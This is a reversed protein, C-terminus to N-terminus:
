FFSEDVTLIDGPYVKTNLTVDKTQVGTKEKVLSIGNKSARKTFGGALTIAREVTMGERFSYAGPNEVEGNVYFPRYEVISITINPKKLYDGEYLNKIKSEAELTTLGAIEVQGILPMSITGVTSIRIQKVSLDPENFVSISIEDDAALQYGDLAQSIAQNQAMFYFLAILVKFKQM